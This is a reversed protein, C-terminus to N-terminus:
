RAAIRYVAGGHDVLYLEGAQDEGFSSIRVAQQHLLTMAWGGGEPRLGWIRGSCYDGFLYWGHLAAFATGRYVFGGTVACGWTHTEYEAIPLALGTRDCGSPPTFCLSGEMIRWGYNGGPRILDVEERAGQGVDALFLRGDCRDFSFRWPNRLGYAYIEPRAGARGVFPNDRPIAYPSGGDVDIRLLKGLVEGLNQARNQPDGASGGDGLGIYLFGDPGFLNLGGNHNSYPQPVVLLERASAPDAVDPHGASVRYEAIVSAGDPRRTYNVFFRGTTAYRPHFAVSLLGQEGGALVRPGIDLFPAPLLTGGRVIRIRGPQEVVFLRGSGDGAHTLHVPQDLGTTVPQLSLTPPTADPAPCAAPGGPPPVAQVCGALLVVM